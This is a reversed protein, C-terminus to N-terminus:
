NRQQRSERAYVQRRKLRDDNVHDRRCQSLGIPSLLRGHRECQAQHGGPGGSLGRGSGFRQDQRERLRFFGAALSLRPLQRERTGVNALECLLSEYYPLFQLLGDARHGCDGRRCVFFLDCAVTIAKRIM